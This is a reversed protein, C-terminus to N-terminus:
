KQKLYFLTKSTACLKFQDYKIEKNMVISLDLLLNLQSLGKKYRAAARKQSFPGCHCYKIFAYNRLKWYMKLRFKVYNDNM